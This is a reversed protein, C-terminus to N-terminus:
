LCDALNNPQQFHILPPILFIACRVSDVSLKGRYKQQSHLDILASLQKTDYVIRRKGPEHGVVYHLILVLM